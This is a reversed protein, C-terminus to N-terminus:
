SFPRGSLPFQTFRGMPTIAAALSFTSSRWADLVIKLHHRSASLYVLANDGNFSIRSDELVLGEECYIVNGKGSLNIRSNRFEPAFGLMQNDEYNKYGDSTDVVTKM